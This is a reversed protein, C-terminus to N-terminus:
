LEVHNVGGGGHVRCLRDDDAIIEEQLGARGDVDLSVASLASLKM